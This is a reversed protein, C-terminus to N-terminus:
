AASAPAGDSPARELLALFFGDLGEEDPLLWHGVPAPVLPLPLIVLVDAPDGDGGVRARQAQTGAIGGDQAAARFADEGGAGEGAGHPGRECAFALRHIRNLEHVRGAAVRDAM